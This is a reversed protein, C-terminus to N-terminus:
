FIREGTSEHGVTLLWKGDIKQMLFTVAIPVITTEQGPPSSTVKGAASIMALDKDLVKIVSEDFQMTFPLSPSNTHVSSVIDYFNNWGKIIKGSGAYLFEEDNWSYKLIDDPKHTNAASTMQDFTTQVENKISEKEADSLVTTSNQCGWLILVMMLFVLYPINIKKM